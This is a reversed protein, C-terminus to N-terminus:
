NLLEERKRWAKQFLTALNSVKTMNSSFADCIKIDSNSLIDPVTLKLLVCDFQHDMTDEGLLCVKCSRKMGFNESTAVM